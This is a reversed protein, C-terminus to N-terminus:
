GIEPGLVFDILQFGHAELADEIDEQSYGGKEEVSAIVGTAHQFAEQRAVDDPISVLRIQSSDKSPLVMLNSSM